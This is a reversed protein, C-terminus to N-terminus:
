DPQARMGAKGLNRAFLEGHDAPASCCQGDFEDLEEGGEDGLYDNAVTGGLGDCREGDRWFVRRDLLEGVSDSYWVGCKIHVQKDVVAPCEGDVFSTAEGTFHQYFM